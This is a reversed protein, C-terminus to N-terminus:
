EAQGDDEVRVVEVTRILDTNSYLFAETQYVVYYFGAVSTDVGEKEVIDQSIDERYYYTVAIEQEEGLFVAKAGLDTYEEYMQVEVFDEGVMEFTDGGTLAGLGFFGAALGIIFCLLVVFITAGKNKSSKVAKAAVAAGAAAAVAQVAKWTTSKKKKTAREKPNKDSAM